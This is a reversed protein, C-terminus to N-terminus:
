WSGDVLLEIVKRALDDALLPRAQREASTLDSGVRVMTHGTVARQWLVKGNGADRVTVEAKLSVSFDRVTLVDQPVFSLGQRSYLTLVGSVIVDPDGHTSLRYTGDEQIRRRLATTVDDGIRPQLTQNTFPEIRVTRSGAELGNTPGLTYAACGGLLGIALGAVLLKGVRTM